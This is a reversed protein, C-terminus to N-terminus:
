QAMNEIKMKKASQRWKAIALGSEAAKV